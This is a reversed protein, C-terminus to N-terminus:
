CCLCIDRYFSPEPLNQFKLIKGTQNLPSFAFLVLYTTNRLETERRNVDQIWREREGGM